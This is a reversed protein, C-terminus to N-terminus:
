SRSPSCGSVAARPGGRRCSSRTPPRTRARHRRGRSSCARWSEAVGGGPHRGKICAASSAPAQRPRASSTHSRRQRAIPARHRQEASLVQRSVWTLIAFVKTRTPSAGLSSDQRSVAPADRSSTGASSGV